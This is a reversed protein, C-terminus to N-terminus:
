SRGSSCLWCPVLWGGSCRRPRRWRRATMPLFLGILMDVPLNLFLPTDGYRFQWASWFGLGLGFAVFGAIYLWRRKTIFREKGRESREQRALFFADIFHLIGGVTYVGAVSLYIQLYHHTTGAMFLFYAGALIILISGVKPYWLAACAFSFAFFSWVVGVISGSIRANLIPLVDTIVLVSYVAFAISVLFTIRITAKKM